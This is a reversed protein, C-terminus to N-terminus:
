VGRDAELPPAFQITVTVPVALHEPPVKGKGWFAEMHREAAESSEFVDRTWFGGSGNYICWRNNTVRPEIEKPMARM